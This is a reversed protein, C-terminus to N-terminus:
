GRDLTPELVPDPKPAEVPVLRGADDLTCDPMGAPVVRLARQGYLPHDRPLDRREPVDAATALRADLREAEVADVLRIAGGDLIAVTDMRSKTTM